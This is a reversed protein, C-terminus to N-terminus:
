CASCGRRGSRDGTGNITAQAPRRPPAFSTARNSSAASTPRATVVLVDREAVRLPLVMLWSRAPGAVLAAKSGLAATATGGYM